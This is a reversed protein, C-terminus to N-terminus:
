RNHNRQFPPRGQSGRRPGAYAPKDGGRGAQKATVKLGRGRFRAGDFSSKLQDLSAQEGEISTWADGLIIKGLDAKQLGSHDLLFQLMSAKYFGDKIGLNIQIGPLDEAYERRARDGNNGAGASSLAGSQMEADNQLSYYHFLREFELWVLKQILADRDLGDLMPQLDQLLSGIRDLKPDAKAIKDFFHRLKTEAIQSGSPVTGQQFKFKLQKEMQRLRMMDKPGLIVMSVGAKGARATRGSRHTYVEADDPISYHVVHTIDRVDIGRAAVDTAVMLQLSRERFRAMVKDRQVQSLDGHLAELDYGERILKETLEQAEAKTRTFVIGYMEPHADILRKLAEYKRSFPVQYFWHELRSPPATGADSRLTQANQLFRDAMKKIEAPMTASFLWTRCRGAAHTMIYDLDDRFGMDLMEDAEDLVLTKVAALDLAKREMLDMLRGPTAVVVQVGSRLKSIQTHIGAGGYVALIQIGSMRASFKHLDSAIQVCLERTPSLVLAQIGKAAPDLHQLLPLGFAATKGSGTQALGFLDHDGSLLLPITQAQIPTPSEFGLDQVGLLLGPVLGLDAFGPVTSNM